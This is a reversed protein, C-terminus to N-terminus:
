WYNETTVQGPSRRLNKHLGRESLVNLTEKVMNPNGCLMVQSHSVELPQQFHKELVGSTVAAPIRGSLAGECTERSVFPVWAFRDPYTRAVLELTDRYALDVKHRVAYALYVREFRVWPSETRLISLFPGVATGTAMMWLDRGDPVESLTLFGGGKRAVWISAGPRLEALKNSLPGAPVTNFHFELVGAHPANVFSYPRAVRTGDIDLGLRTYQGAQFPEVDAEVRLTHLYESWHQTGVVRGEVWESM